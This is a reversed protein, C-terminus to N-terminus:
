GSEMDGAGPEFGLICAHPNDGVIQRIDAGSAELAVPDIKRRQGILLLPYRSLLRGVLGGIRDAEIKARAHLNLSGSPDLTLAREVLRAIREINRQVSRSEKLHLQRTIPLDIHVTNQSCGLM